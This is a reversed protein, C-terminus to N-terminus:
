ADTPKEEEKNEEVAPKKVLSLLVNLGKDHAVGAGLGGLFTETAIELLIKTETIDALGGFQYKLFASTVLAAVFVIIQEKGKVVKPLIKKASEVLAVTIAIIASITLPETLQIDM